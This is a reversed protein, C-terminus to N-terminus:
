QQRLTQTPDLCAARYAPVSSAAISVLLLLAATLGFTLPDTPAVHFLLGTLFRSVIASVTLGIGTGIVALILGRRAIMGLVDARQAGLAMRLGIELRRQVVM